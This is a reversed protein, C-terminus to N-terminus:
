SAQSGSSQRSSIGLLKYLGCFGFLGTLAMVAGALDLVIGLTSGAHVMLGFYLLVSALVLRILRDLMGVNSFM